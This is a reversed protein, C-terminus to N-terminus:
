ACSPRVPVCGGFGRDREEENDQVLPLCMASTIAFAM